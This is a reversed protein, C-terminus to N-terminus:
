SEVLAPIVQVHQLAECLRVSGGGLLKIKECILILPWGLLGQVPGQAHEAQAFGVWVPSCSHLSLIFEPPFPIAHSNPLQAM